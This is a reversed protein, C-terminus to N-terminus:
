VFDTPGDIHEKSFLKSTFKSVMDAAIDMAEEFTLNRKLVQQLAQAMEERTLIGDMDKDLFHLKDGIKVEVDSLQVEIKGVMSEVRSKLRKIAKDLKDDAAYELPPETETVIEGGGSVTEIDSTMITAKEAEKAVNTDMAAVVSAALNDAEEATMPETSPTTLSAGLNDVVTKDAIEVEIPGIAAEKQTEDEEESKMATKLRELEERENQVPDPSVLQSIAEIEESSLETEEEDEVEEEKKETEEKIPTKESLEGKAPAMVIEEKDPTVSITTQSESTSKVSQAAREEAAAEIKEKEEQERKKAAAEMEKREREKQEEAILENQQELVELKIKLVDSSSKQEESTAVQLVVENVVEKDLGSIADALGAVSKSGDKDTPTPSAIEDRLFFTRSMILLAIPVKQNVSLELWQQLSDKYADKTLGTSRMGREQCAERLEMKTLSDIGEWLIRQDDEKLTRIRNRLQFRLFSDAGYPPISMYKCMNILQMRPMNDLTLDDHFFSSFRIIVDPPIVEGKRSRELFELM